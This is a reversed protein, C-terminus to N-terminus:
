LNTYIHPSGCGEVAHIRIQKIPGITFGRKTGLLWVVVFCNKTVHTHVWCSSITVRWHRDHASLNQSVWRAYVPLVLFSEPIIQWRECYFHTIRKCNSCWEESKWFWSGIVATSLQNTADSPRSSCPYPYGETCETVHSNTWLLWTLGVSFYNSFIWWVCCGFM